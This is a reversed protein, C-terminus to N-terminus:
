FPFYSLFVIEFLSFPATSGTAALFKNKKKTKKHKLAEGMAYPPEWVLPGIPATAAPRRWLWLWVPDSGRRRGVGGNLAIGPRLMSLSALSQVWIRM